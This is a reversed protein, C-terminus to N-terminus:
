PRPCPRQDVPPQSPARPARPGAEDAAIDPLIARCLQVEYEVGM